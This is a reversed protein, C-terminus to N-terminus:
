PLMLRGPHMIYNPDFMEKVKRLYKHYTGAKSYTMPAHVYADPRYNIWGKSLCIETTERNMDQVRIFDDPNSSDFCVIPMCIAQRCREISAIWMVEPFGYKKLVANYVEAFEACELWPTYWTIFLFGAEWYSYPIAIKNPKKMRSEIQKPHIKWEVMADPDKCRPSKKFEECKKDITKTVIDLEEQTQAWCEWNMWWEPVGIKKYFAYDHPVKDKPWRTMVLPWNGGQVMVTNHAIGFELKGLDHTVDQMDYPNGMAWAKVTKYHPHPFIKVIGKTVIGMTGQSGMLTSFLEPGLGWRYFPKAGNLASSGYNLIDGNPMCVEAGMFIEGQPGMSSTVLSFGRDIGDGLVTAAPPAGDAIPPIWDSHNKAMYAWLEGNTVGPEIIAYRNKEDIEIIRNMRSMDLVVGSPKTLPCAFGGSLGAAVPSVPIRRDSCWILIKRVEETYRPRVVVEGICSELGMVSKALYSAVVAPNASVFRKGVVSEFHDIDKQEINNYLM